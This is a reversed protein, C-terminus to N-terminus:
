GAQVGFTEELHQTVAPDLGLATGLHNLYAREQPTDVEIA